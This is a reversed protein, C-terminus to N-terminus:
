CNKMKTNFNAIMNRSVPITEDFDNLQLKYGQANGFVNKIHYINVLYSRHIKVINSYPKLVLELEKMTIRKIIKNVKEEKLFLEVYNGDARVFLLSNINFQLNENKLNTKISIKSNIIPTLLGHSANLILANKINKYNLRNFNLPVLILTFLTGILFTNRVEEYLYKFSWNNPNNYIIDRILFQAIGILLMFFFVFLFEKGITWNEDLESVLIYLSLLLLVLIPIIAHIFSIWLFDMKHEPINVEFPEFFYNFFFSMILLLGSIIWLIKRSYYYPYPQILFALVKNKLSSKYIDM